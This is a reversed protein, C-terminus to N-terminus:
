QGIELGCSFGCDLSARQSDRLSKTCYHHIFKLFILQRKIEYRPKGWLSNKDGLFCMKYDVLILASSSFNTILPDKSHGM